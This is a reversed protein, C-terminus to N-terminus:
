FALFKSKGELKSGQFRHESEFIYDFLVSICLNENRKPYKANLSDFFWLEHSAVVTSFAVYTHECLKM